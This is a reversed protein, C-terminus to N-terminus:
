PIAGPQARSPGARLQRSMRRIRYGVVATNVVLMTLWLLRWYSSDKLAAILLATTSVLLWAIEGALSLQDRRRTM